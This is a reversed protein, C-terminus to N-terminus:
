IHDLDIQAPRQAPDSLEEARLMRSLRYARDEGATTALLNTRDRVTVPGHPDVIRTSPTKGPAAYDFHLKHGPLVAHRAESM